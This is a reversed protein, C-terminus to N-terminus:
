EDCLCISKNEDDLFSKLIYHESANCLNCTREWVKRFGNNNVHDKKKFGHTCKCVLKYVPFKTDNRKLFYQFIFKILLFDYFTYTAFAERSKYSNDEFILNKFNYHILDLTSTQIWENSNLFTEASLQILTRPKPKSLRCIKMRNTINNYEMVRVVKTYFNLNECEYRKPDKLMKRYYTGPFYLFDNGSEIKEIINFHFLLDYMVKPVHELFQVGYVYQIINLYHQRLFISDINSNQLYIRKLQKFEEFDFKMPHTTSSVLNNFYLHKNEEADILNM